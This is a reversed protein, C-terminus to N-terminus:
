KTPVISGSVERLTPAENEDVVGFVVVRGLQYQVAVCLWDM